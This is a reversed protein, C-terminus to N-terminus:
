GEGAKWDPAMSWEVVKGIFVVVCCRSVILFGLKKIFFAQFFWGFNAVQFVKKM